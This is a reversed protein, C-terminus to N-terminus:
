RIMLDKNLWKLNRPTLLAQLDNSTTTSTANRGRAIGIFVQALTSALYEAEEDSESSDCELM